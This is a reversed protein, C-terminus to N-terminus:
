GTEVAYVRWDGPVGKLEAVGRDSFAFGVGAVLDRLTGSVLVEGPPALGAVRAGVAVAVGGIKGEVVECEGTHLGARIRLGAAVLEDRIAVACQIARAPGDFMAFFGDGATDLERGRFRILQRRVITNHLRIVDVWAADGLEVAQETSGVIDTFLVTALVRNTEDIEWARADWCTELFSCTEGVISDLDDLLDPEPLEVFRAGPIQEAM